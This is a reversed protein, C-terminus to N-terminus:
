LAKTSNYPEAGTQRGLIELNSSYNKHVIIFLLYLSTDHEILPKVAGIKNM